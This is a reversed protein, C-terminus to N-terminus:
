SRKGVGQSLVRMRGARCARHYGCHAPPVAPAGWSRRVGERAAPLWPLGQGRRPSSGGDGLPQVAQSMVPAPHPFALGGAETQPKGSPRGDWHRAGPPLLAKATGAVAGRRRQQTRRGQEQPHPDGSGMAGDRLGNGPAARAWPPTPATPGSSLCHGQSQGWRDSEPQAGCSTEAAMQKPATGPCPGAEAPQEGPPSAAGPNPAQKHHPEARGTGSFHRKAQM